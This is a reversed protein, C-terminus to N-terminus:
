GLGTGPIDSQGTYQGRYFRDFLHPLDQSDIGIGSDIIELVVQNQGDDAYTIVHVFGETTYNFANSLLNNIVQALQNKAGYIQPINEGPTFSFVLNDLDARPNYATIIQDVLENLDLNKFSTQTDTMDLRSLNLTNEILQELRKTEKKLVDLYHNRREVRGRELLDLYLWLNAVPTRLEHSVDSVFKSKLRDLEKLQENADALEKTRESVREELEAAHAQLREHLRATELARGLEEGVTKVLQLEEATFTRPTLDDIGLTGIIRGRIAIPVLLMSVTGRRALLNWVSETISDTQANDIALPRGTRLVEQLAINNAVPIREHLVPVRGPSLYEAVVTEYTRTEDLLALAAQPVNFFLALEKCGIQLVEIGTRASAAAGIIKNLLDLERARSRVETFLRTKEVALAIAQAIQSLLPLQSPDYGKLYPWVLNLSGIVRDEVHLPLNIRSRHGADYLSKEAPFAIEQELDPTLHLRGALVNTACATLTVPMRIGQALESRPQDLAYISFWTNEEELLAISIRDCDVIDKLGKAINPFANVVNPYANLAHLIDQASQLDESRRSTEEFLRAKELTIALQDTVALLTAIDGSNFTNLRTSDVNLVGIVQNGVKLPLAAESSINMGELEFFEPSEGTDNVIQPLGTEVAKGILGEGFKQRYVGVKLFSAYNGSTGQLVVERAGEDVVLISVNFYGYERHLRETVISCLEQVKLLSTMERALDAVTQLRKRQLREADETRLRELAIALQSALTTLLREDSTTFAALQDSEANIVGMIRDGVKLPVCLESRTAPDGQIYAESEQIDNLLIPLGTAVVRGVVGENVKISVLKQVGSRYSPHASLKEKFEDLLFVGFNHPYFTDAIIRTTEGILTDEDTAKVGAIAISHLVTLEELQRRTAEFLRANKIAIAAEDAFLNLVRQENNDFDHPADFAINMVGLIEGGIKLPFGAIGGGWTWSQFLPHNNVNPILIAEGKNAVTATLGDPRVTKFPSEERGDGWLAAGFRLKGGDYLFIHVDTADILRMAQELIVELLPKLELNATLHFSAKRLAELEESRRGSEKVRESIEEYLRANKIAAAIHSSLLSALDIDEQTFRSSNVDDVLTLTGMARDETILPVGMISQVNFKQILSHDVSESNQADNIFIPRKERIVRAGLLLPNSTSFRIGLFMENQYGYGAFGVLEDNELLWVFAGRVNFLHSSEQCILELLQVLDHTENFGLSIRELTEMGRVQKNERGRKEVLEVITAPLDTANLQSRPIYDDAGMRIYRVADAATDREGIVVISITSNLLKLQEFFPEEGETEIKGSSVLILDPRYKELLLELSEGSKACAVNFGHSGSELSQLIAEQNNLNSESILLQIVPMM